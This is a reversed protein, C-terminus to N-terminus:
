FCKIHHLSSLSFLCLRAFNPTVGPPDLQIICMILHTLSPL